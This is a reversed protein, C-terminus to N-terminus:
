ASPVVPDQDLPPQSTQAGTAPAALASEVSDRIVFVNTLGTLSFLKSLREQTVVLQLSGGNKRIKKLSAVLVGLGTSDLFEV